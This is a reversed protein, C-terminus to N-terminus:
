SMRRVYSTSWCIYTNQHVHLSPGLVHIRENFIRNVFRTFNNLDCSERWGQLIFLRSDGSLLRGNQTLLRRSYFSRCASFWRRFCSDIIALSERERERQMEFFGRGLRYLSLSLVQLLAADTALSPLLTYRAAICLPGNIESGSCSGSESLPFVPGRSSSSRM